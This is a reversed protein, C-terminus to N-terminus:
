LTMSLMASTYASFLVVLMLSTVAILDLFRAWDDDLDEAIAAAVFTIAALVSLGFFIGSFRFSKLMSLGSMFILGYFLPKAAKSLQSSDLELGNYNSIGGM